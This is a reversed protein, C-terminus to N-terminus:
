LTLIVQQDLLINVSIAAGLPKEEPDPVIFCDAPDLKIHEIEGFRVRSKLIPHLYTHKRSCLILPSPFSPM